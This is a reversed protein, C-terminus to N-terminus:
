SGDGLQELSVGRPPKYRNYGWLYQQPSQRILAEMAANIRAAAEEPSTEPGIEPGPQVRVVYGRSKPLRDAWLVVARADTQQLLRTALTMTYAERGFFPAWVGLGEPPVQDPLLGVAEKKRLARLMKRVGLLSAPAGEINPRDRATEVVGRLIEQRSPRYLVTIPGFREAYAQAAVEFCGLHPTILLVGHGEDRLQQLLADGEWSVREGLPVQRPRAWLWPLEGLLRGAHRAASRVVGPGYGALAANENMRRRYTPSFAWALVGATSGLAHLLWLPWRSMWRLLWM